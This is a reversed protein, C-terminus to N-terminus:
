VSVRRCLPESHLFIVRVRVRVRSRSSPPALCTGRCLTYKECKPTHPFM